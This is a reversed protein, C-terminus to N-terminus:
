AVYLNGIYAKDWKFEEKFWKWDIENIKIWWNSDKDMFGFRWIADKSVVSSNKQVLGEFKMEAIFATEEFDKEV